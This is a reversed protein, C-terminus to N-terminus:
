QGFGDAGAGSAEFKTIVVNQISPLDSKHTHPIRCPGPFYNETRYSNQMVGATIPFHVHQFLLCVQLTPLQELRTYKQTNCVESM